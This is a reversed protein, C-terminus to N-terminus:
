IRYAFLTPRNPWDGGRRLGGGISHPCHRRRNIWSASLVRIGKSPEPHSTV